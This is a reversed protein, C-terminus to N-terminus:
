CDLLNSSVNHIWSSVLVQFHVFVISYFIFWAGHMGIITLIMISEGFSFCPASHPSPTKIRSDGKDSVNHSDNRM